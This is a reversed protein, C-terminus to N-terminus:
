ATSDFRWRVHGHRLRVRPAKPAICRLLSALRSHTRSLFESSRISHAQVVTSSGGVYMCERQCAHHYTIHHSTALAATAAARAKGVPLWAIDFRSHAVKLIFCFHRSSVVEVGSSLSLAASSIQSMHRSQSHARVYSNAYEQAKTHSQQRWWPLLLVGSM